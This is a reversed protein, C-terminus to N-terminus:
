SHVTRAAIDSVSALLHAIIARVHDPMKSAKYSSRPTVDLSGVKVNEFKELGTPAVEFTGDVLALAYEFMAEKIPRPVVDADYTWGDADVTGARPWRLRQTSTTVTGMWEESELLDTAMRLARNKIDDTTAALDWTAYGLRSEIYTEANALTDYANANTAKATAVITVAM